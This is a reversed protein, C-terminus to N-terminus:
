TSLTLTIEMTIPIPDILGVWQRVDQELYTQNGGVHALAFSQVGANAVPLTRRFIGAEGGNFCEVPDAVLPALDQM